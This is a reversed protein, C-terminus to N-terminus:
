NNAPASAAGGLDLLDGMGLSSMHVTADRWVHEIAPSGVLGMLAGAPVRASFGGVMPLEHTVLGGLRGILREADGSAPSTERIILDLVERPAAAAQRLLAPSAKARADARPLALLSTAVAALVVAAVIPRRYTPALMGGHSPSRGAQNLM